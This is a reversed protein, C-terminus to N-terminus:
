KKSNKDNASAAAKNTRASGRTMAKEETPKEDKKKDLGYALAALQSYTGEPGLYAITITMSSPSRLM